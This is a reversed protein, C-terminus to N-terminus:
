IQGRVQGAESGAWPSGGAAGGLLPRLRRRRREQGARAAQRRQRRSGRDALAPHQCLEHCPASRLLAPGLSGIRRPSEGGQAAAAHTRAAPDQAEEQQQQARRLHTAAPFGPPSHSVPHTKPPSRATSCIPHGLGRLPRLDLPDGPLQDLSPIGSPEGSRRNREGAVCEERHDLLPHCSPAVLKTQKSSM